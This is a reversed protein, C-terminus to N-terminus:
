HAGPRTSLIVAGDHAGAAHVATDAVLLAIQHAGDPTPDEKGILLTLIHLAGGVTAIAAAWIFDIVTVPVTERHTPDAIAVTIVAIELPVRDFNM